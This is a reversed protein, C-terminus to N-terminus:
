GSLGSEFESGLRLRLISAGGGCVVHMFLGGVWGPFHLRSPGTGYHFYMVFSKKVLYDKETVVCICVAGVAAPCASVM